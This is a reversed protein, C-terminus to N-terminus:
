FGIILGGLEAYYSCLGRTPIITVTADNWVNQIESKVQEAFEVNQCHDIIVDKIYTGRQKMDTIIADIAKKRGRAVGKVEVTGKESAIGIGLLGLKNAIFGTVKNMRGNKVLNDFSCLAFAVHTHNMHKHIEEVVTDFDKNEGILECLKRLILILEPGTSLSDIIHIKKDPMEELVMDRAVCASNYSGSLGSTITIAIVNGEKKFQECWAGASPCATKSATKCAKMASVLEGINLNEDDVYDVDGVSIVFPVTSFEVNEQPRELDFLDISSDAVINWKM